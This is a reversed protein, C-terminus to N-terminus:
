QLQQNKKSHTTPIGDSTDGSTPPTTSTWFAHAEPLQGSYLNLLTLVLQRYPESSPVKLDKMKERLMARIMNKAVRAAMQEDVNDAIFLLWVSCRPM